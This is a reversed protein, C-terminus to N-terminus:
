NTTVDAKGLTNNRSDNYDSFKFEDMGPFLHFKAKGMARNLEPLSFINLFSGSDVWLWISKGCVNALVGTNPIEVWIGRRGESEDMRGTPGPQPFEITLTDMVRQSEAPM